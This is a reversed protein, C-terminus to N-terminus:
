GRRLEPRVCKPGHADNLVGTPKRWFDVPSGAVRDRLPRQPRQFNKNFQTEGVIRTNKRNPMVAISNRSGIATRM